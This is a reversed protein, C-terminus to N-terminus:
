VTPLKENFTSDSRFINVNHHLSIAPKTSIELHAKQQKKVTDKLWTMKYKEIDEVGPM